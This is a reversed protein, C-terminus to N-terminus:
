FENEDKEENFLNEKKTDSLESSDRINENEDSQDPSYLNNINYDKEAEKELYLKTHKQFGFFNLVIIENHISAIFILILYIILRYCFEMTEINEFIFKSIFLTGFSVMIEGLPQYSPTFKDIIFFISINYFYRLIFIAIDMFINSKNEYIKWLRTFICSNIGNEDPLDVFIFIILFLVVISNLSIARYLLFSYPSVSYDSFIVKALVDELSYFINSLIRVIMYFLTMLFKDSYIFTRIDLICLLILFILNIILSLYHHKHFLTKLILRSFLYKSIINIILLSNLHTKSITVNIKEGIVNFIVSSYLSIFELFSTLIIFIYKRKTEEYQTEYFILEIENKNNMEPLINKGKIGKSRVKIIIIPIVSLFDSLSYIVRQHFEEIIDDTTDCYHKILDIAISIIFYMLFLLYRIDFKNLQICKM